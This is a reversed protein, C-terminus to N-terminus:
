TWREFVWRGSSNEDRDTPLVIGNDLDEGGRLQPHYRMVATGQADTLHAICSATLETTSVARLAAVDAALTPPNCNGFAM